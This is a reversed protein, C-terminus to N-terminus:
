LIRQEHPLTYKPWVPRWMDLFTESCILPVLTSFWRGATSSCVAFFLFLMSKSLLYIIGLILVVRGEDDSFGDFYCYIRNTTVTFVSVSQTFGLKVQEEVGEWGWGQVVKMWSGRIESEQGRPSFFLFLFSSLISFFLSLLVYELV